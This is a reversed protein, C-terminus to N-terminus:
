PAIPGLRPTRGYTEFGLFAGFREHDPGHFDTSGTTLLGLEEARDCVLHTQRETHTVYFAEVGDMGLGAFRGLTELVEDDEALDWFPHAWIAIGGAAHILDVAEAITPTTRPRYAPRGPILYAALIEGPNTLGERALRHANAPHALVAQALHPRGIPRGMARREGLLSRDLTLGCDELADAMRRARAVRDARFGVLAERLAPDEHDVLYGCIHLDEHAGDLASLETGTVVRIARGDAEELAAEVGDVADHDTLSLLQVGARDAAAVVQAPALMGDSVTSHSQLDFRLSM